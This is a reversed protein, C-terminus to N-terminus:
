AAREQVAPASAGLADRVAPMAEAAMSELLLVERKSLTRPEKDLLCLTGLLHEGDRVPAGAYFRLGQQLLWPNAAFRPDRLADPVVLSAGAAVAHACVSQERPLTAPAAPSPTSSGQTLQREGDVLNVQALACDFVDAARRALADLAPRARVSLAGSAQLARVRERDGAPVAAPAFPPVEAGIGWQEAGAVLEAISGAVADAGTAQALQAGGDGPPANWPALVVQVDPWRQRIRRVLTRGLAAPEGAFTSVCVVRAGRLDLTRRDAPTMGREATRCPHGALSLAHAAMEAALADVEWRAGICVAEPARDDDVPHQERLEEILREMGSVMRLRHETTALTRHAATAMRLAPLAVADYFAQASAKDVEEVALDVAEEADGALLRQYLRTPLDLAPRSGLVVDLFQLQPLYRGMVMLVVTIPASMVLGAPGWIVTWFMAALILSLPSVGTTSGYLWPEVLNNSILEIGAILVATWILTSWGPDVAFALLLPFMAAVVPGAYPVFRLLGAVLGWMAAGPVGLLWLGLALPLGYTANVVLQMTLYRSVRRAAEGLADTTRHLNGGLLRLLRDRLDGTDLLILVLFVVVIGATALPQLIGDLWTGLRQMATPPAPVVEVREPTPTRGAAPRSRSEIDRQAADLEREVTGTVKALESLVGPGRLQERLSRMKTAINTQYTPLETALARVQQAVFVVTAGGVALTVSMVAVVALVRPWRWRRLHTVLPDLVFGLLVALALPILLDRGFFLGAIIVAAAVLGAAVSVVSRPQEPLPAPPPLGDAATGEASTDGM